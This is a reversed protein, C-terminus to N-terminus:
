INPKPETRDVINNKDTIANIPLIVRCKKGASIMDINFETTPIM